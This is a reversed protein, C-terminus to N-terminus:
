SRRGCSGPPSGSAPRGAVGAFIASPPRRKKEDAIQVAAFLTKVLKERENQRLTGLGNEQAAIEQGRARQEEGPATGAPLVKQRLKQQGAQARQAPLQALVVRADEQDQAIVIRAALFGADNLMFFLAQPLIDM